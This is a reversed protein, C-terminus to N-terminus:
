IDSIPKSCLYPRRIAVDNVAFPDNFGANAHTSATAFNAIFANAKNGFRRRLEDKSILLSNTLDSHSFKHGLTRLHGVATMQRTIRDIIFKAIDIIPRISIGANQVLWAADERYRQRAFHTFQHLYFSDAGYYIAERAILGIAEPETAIAEPEGEFLWSSDRLLRDHFERLLRAARDAFSNDDAELSLTRDTTAPVSLGLLLMLENTNLRSTSWRYLPDDVVRGEQTDVTVVWDRYVIASIEHLAGDSQALMRLDDLIKELSRPDPRNHSTHGFM